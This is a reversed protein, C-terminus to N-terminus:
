IWVIDKILTEVSYKLDELTGNNEIIYDYEYNEVSEDAYNNAVKSADRRILITICDEKYQDKYKQIEEPERCMVFFVKNKEADDEEIVNISNVFPGNNFNTWAKKIEHLFKRSPEDKKGNWGMRMAISKVDLVTDVNYVPHVTIEKFIEVFKDKGSQNCGNLIIVKKM